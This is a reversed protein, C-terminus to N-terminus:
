ANGELCLGSIKGKGGSDGDHCAEAQQQSHPSGAKSSKWFLKGWQTRYRSPEKRSLCDISIGREFILFHVQFANYRELLQSAYCSTAAKAGTAKRGRKEVPKGKISLLFLTSLM